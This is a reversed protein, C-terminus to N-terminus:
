NLKFSQGCWSVFRPKPFALSLEAQEHAVIGDVPWDHHCVVLSEKVVAKVCFNLKLCFSHGTIRM